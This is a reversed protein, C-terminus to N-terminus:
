APPAVAAGVSGACGDVMDAASRSRSAAVASSSAARSRARAAAVGSLGGATEQSFWARVYGDSARCSTDRQRTLHADIEFPPLLTRDRAPAAATPFQSATVDRDHQPWV